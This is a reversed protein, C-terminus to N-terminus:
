WWPITADRISNTGCHVEGGGLHHSFWDDQYVVTYNIERYAASVAEAIIDKGEILPGWPNPALVHTNSLVLGNVTGPYFAAVQFDDDFKRRHLMKARSHLAGAMIISKASPAADDTDKDGPCKFDETYFVSPVRIIDEDELGTERKIIDINAQINKAAFTQISTFNSTLNGRNLVDDITDSPLCRDKDTPFSSRSQAKLGGFGDDKARELIELGGIPDSVMMVWGRENSAPLFQLFEDTHGVMLWSTDINVTPQEEQAELFKVMYPQTGNYSGMITRGAPYSKGNHQHPPITELNGTSEISEGFGEKLYQVAGITDSRLKSFILRGAPRDSQTSRIMVRLMIAGKPGPISTYGPEFFDQVWIDDEPFLVVPKTIGAKAVNTKLDQVFKSQPDKAISGATLVQSAVQLHHHTLVPAVRLAVSDNATDHGDHVSLHVTARGDWVGPRRVDRADIGLDLGAKLDKAPFAYDATVYVWGNHEKRFIRVREAAGAGSVSICGTAADSLGPAPVSKLPALYKPNRQVNDSADHCQDIVSDATSNNIFVSCRQHADGINALFLAGREVAWTAKGDIDTTGTVDVKGDRNTDALITVKLAQGVGM